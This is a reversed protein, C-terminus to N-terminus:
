WLKMGLLYDYGGKGADNAGEMMAEDGQYIQRMTRFGLKQLNNVVEKRPRNRVKLKEEIVLELFRVKNALVERERKLKRILWEKRLRYMELRVKAFAMLIECENEYRQIKGEEDFLMMNQVSLSKRLKFHAHMGRRELQNLKEEPCTLVFHVTSETHYEKM